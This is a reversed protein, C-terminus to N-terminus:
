RRWLVERWAAPQRTFYSTIIFGNSRGIERYVVILYKSGLPTKEYSRIAMKTGQDGEQIYDPDNITELVKDKQDQMEPHRRCIYGWREETM